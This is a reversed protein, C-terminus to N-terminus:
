ILFDSGIYGVEGPDQLIDIGEVDFKMRVVIVSLEDIPDPLIQCSVPTLFFNRNCGMNWPLSVWATGPGWWFAFDLFAMGGSCFGICPPAFYEPYKGINYNHNPSHDGNIEPVSVSGISYFVIACIR